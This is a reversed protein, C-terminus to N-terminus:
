KGLLKQGAEKAAQMDMYNQTMKAKMNEWFKLADAAAMGDPTHLQPMLTMMDKEAKEMANLVDTYQKNVEPTMQGSVMQGKLELGTQNMEAMAKMADDHLTMTEKELMQYGGPEASGTPAAVPKLDMKCVPCTGMEPYTKGNECDMPCAYATATGPSNTSNNSTQGCAAMLLLIQFLFLQIRM